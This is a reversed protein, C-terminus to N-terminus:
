NILNNCISFNKPLFFLCVFFVSLAYWLTIGPKKLKLLCSLIYFANLFSKYPLIILFKLLASTTKLVWDRKTVSIQWTKEFTSVSNIGQFLCWRTLISWNAEIYNRAVTKTFTHLIFTNWKVHRSKNQIEVVLNKIIILRKVVSHFNLPFM